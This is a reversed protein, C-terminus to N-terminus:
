CWAEADRMLGGSGCEAEAGRKAGPRPELHFPRCAFTLSSRHRTHTTLTSRKAPLFGRHASPKDCKLAVCPWCDRLWKHGLSVRPQLAALASDFPRHGGAITGCIEPIEEGKPRAEEGPVCRRTPQLTRRAVALATKRWSRLRHPPSRLLIM